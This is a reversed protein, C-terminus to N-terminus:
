SRRWQLVGLASPWHTQRHRALGPSGCPAPYPGSCGEQVQGRRQGDEAALLHVRADTLVRHQYLTCLQIPSVKNMYRAATFLYDSLRNLYVAVGRDCHGGTTLPTIAREARRCIARALHLYSASKCGGPLIFNTLPELEEDQM